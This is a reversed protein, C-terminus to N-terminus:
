KKSAKLLTTEEKSVEVGAVPKGAKVYADIMKENPMTFKPELEGTIKWRKVRRTTTTASAAAPTPLTAIAGAAYLQAAEREAREYVLRYAEQAKKLLDIAESYEAIVKKWPALAEARAAEQTASIEAHTDAAMRRKEVLDRMLDDALAVDEATRIVFSQLAPTNM